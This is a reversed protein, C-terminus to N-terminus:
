AEEQDTCETFIQASTHQVCFSFYGLYVRFYGLFVQMIQQTLVTMEQPSPVRAQPPVPSISLHGPGAGPPFMLPSVRQTPPPAEPGGPLPFGTIPPMPPPPLSGQRQMTVLKLVSLLVDRQRQQSPFAFIFVAEDIIVLM